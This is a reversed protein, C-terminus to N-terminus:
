MAMQCAEPNPISSKTQGPEMPQDRQTPQNEQRQHLKWAEMVATQLRERSESTIAHFTDVYHNGVKVNPMSVFQGNKSDFIKLGHVTFCGGITVRAIARLKSSAPFTKLIKAEIEM